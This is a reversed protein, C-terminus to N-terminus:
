SDRPPACKCRWLWLFGALILLVSWRPEPIEQPSFFIFDLTADGAFRLEGTQGAFRSMDAGWLRSGVQQVPLDEGAFSVSIWPSNGGMMFFISRTPDPVSGTQSISPVVPETPHPFRPQLRLSFNGQLVPLAYPNEEDYVAVFEGGLTVQDYLIWPSEYTGLYATWGPIANSTAIAQYNPDGVDLPVLKAQEFSMNQFVTQPLATQCCALLVSGHVFSFLGTKMFSERRPM